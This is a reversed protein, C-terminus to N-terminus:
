PVLAPMAAPLEARLGEVTQEILAVLEGITEADFALRAGAAEFLEPLPRTGGLALAERYRALATAPDDLSNRWVQLAGLQAIGYEIYYFPVQFIHLKHQWLGSRIDELGSWDVGVNFREHLRLWAADRTEHDHDPNSYLWHQFADVTAMYPLFSIIRELHSIRARLAEAGAFFGGSERGIYPATLLEMTMSAVEAFEMPSRRQWIFPLARTEFVHFAHGAEHLMTRVNQESGVANMFIFPLRRRSLTACYGGPAKGKRNELDLLGEDRMRRVYGGLEADVHDFVRASRETLEDGTEFPRLPAGGLPDVQTDWPRLGDLGLAEARRASQRQLAPVVVDHIAEQFTEADAPGYDFRGMVRWQYDRFNDFGANRAITVRLDVLEDFLADLEARVGERAAMQARWAAERRGRDVESLLPDMRPLTREEGEFDVTLGGIVQGYRSAKTQADAIPEQNAERFIEVDSRFHRRVTGLQGNGGVWDVESWRTKLRQEAKRIHPAVDRIFGLWATEREPDSTDQSYRISLLAAGEAVHEALDSWADLWAEAARPTLEAEELAQFRPELSEWRAVDISATLAPETTM